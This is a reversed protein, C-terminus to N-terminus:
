TQLDLVRYHTRVKLPSDGTAIEGTLMHLVLAANNVPEFAVEQVNCVRHEDAAQDLFGTAECVACQAGSADTYKVALDEGAAIGDYATSNYDLMLQVCVPVLVKGAGPAAVIQIATANLALLEGTTIEVNATYLGNKRESVILWNAGDSVITIADGTQFLQTNTAAGNITEAANGDITLINGGTTLQIELQKGAHGVATFLTLTRAAASSDMRIVTDDILATYNAAKVATVDSAQGRSTILWNAGDSVIKMIDNTQSMSVDTTLGDITEAGNGDITLINGGTTLKITLEKGANGVATFLTLTQAGGSTNFRIVSDDVLATYAGTKIATVDASEGKGTVIWNAGDSVIRMWDGTQSLSVDTTLGDITEAGNGDITLINGGTTVKILYEKGAVGVATPLTFTFAGGSTNARVIDDIALVTYNATKVASLDIDAEETQILWNANDSVLVLVDNTASLETNTAAGDITEAGNGDVTLINGGTTLKIVFKKGPYGVATPLTLTFAGGSTNARIIDDTISVTYNATKVATVVGTQVAPSTITWTAAATKLYTAAGAVVGASVVLRHFISGIPAVTDPYDTNDPVTDGWFTKTEYSELGGPVAYTELKAVQGVNKYGDAM